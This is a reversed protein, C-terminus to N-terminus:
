GIWGAVEYVAYALLICLFPIVPVIWRKWRLSLSSIFLLFFLPFAILLRRGKQKSALCLLFGVGAFLLGMTSVAKPIPVRLYWVINQVFGEGTASLHTPRAEVMIDLLAARFDLFLFPSGLFAGVFIQSYLQHCPLFEVIITLVLVVLSKRFKM